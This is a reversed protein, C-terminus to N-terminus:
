EPMSKHPLTLDLCFTGSKAVSQHTGIQISSKQKYTSLYLQSIKHTPTLTNSKPMLSQNTCLPSVPQQWWM